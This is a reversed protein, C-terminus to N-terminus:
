QQASWNSTNGEEFGDAFIPPIRQTVLIEHETCGEAEYEDIVCIKVAYQGIAQYIRSESLNNLDQDVVAASVVGDSWDIVASLTDNIDEDTFSATIVFQEETEVEQPAVADVVPASNIIWSLRHATGIMQFAVSTQGNVDIETQNEVDILRSRHVINAFLEGAGQWSLTVQRPSDSRIEFDWRGGAGPRAERYDSTYSWADTGWEPHPFVATLYRDGFPAMEDLDHLDIGDVSDLLRGMLNGHDEMQDGTVTLRIYWEESELNTGARGGAPGGTRAALSAVADATPMRLTLDQNAKVWFGSSEELTGEMGATVGDFSDYHDGVWQYMNKSAIGASDAQTPSYETVGDVFRVNAWPISSSYPFGKMNAHDAALGVLDVDFCQEYGSSVPCITSPPNESVDLTPAADLSKFWYGEGQSLTDSLAITHYTNLDEDREIAIWTSGYDAPDLDDGFVDEVSGSTPSCGLSMLAWNGQPISVSCDCPCPYVSRDNCDDSNVVYGAPLSCATTSEAPNGLGDGDEDRYYSGVCVAWPEYGHVGDDALFFLVGGSLILQQPHADGSGAITNGVLTTGVETGDSQWIERGSVGDNAQFFTKGHGSVLYRPAGRGSGPWIDKVMVTTALTGDSRWLEDGVSMSNTAQFLLTGQFDVLYGPYHWTQPGQPHSGKRLTRLGPVRIRM